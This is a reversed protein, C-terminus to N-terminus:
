TPKEPKLHPKKTLVRMFNQHAAQTARPDNREWREFETRATYGAASWIDKKTIRRGTKQLVENRYAQVAAQREEATALAGITAPEVISPEPVTTSQDNKPPASEDTLAKTRDSEPLVNESPAPVKEPVVPAIRFTVGKEGNALAIADLVLVTLYVPGPTGPEIWSGDKEQVSWLWRQALAAQRTWGGPQALALAHLAMATSVVSGDGDSSLTPWAGSKDQYRCITELAQHVLGADRNSSTLRYYAFVIASAYPLHRELSPSGDSNDLIWPQQKNSGALSIYELYGEIVRQMLAIGYDSRLINFLWDAALAPEEIGGRLLTEQRDRVLRLWWQDFGRIECWEVTRLMTAEISCDELALADWFDRLLIRPIDAINSVDANLSRKTRKAVGTQLDHQVVGWNYEDLTQQEATKWTTILRTVRDHCDHGRSRLYVLAEQDTECDLHDAIFSLWGEAKALPQVGRNSDVLTRYEENREQLARRWADVREMAAKADEYDYVQNRRRKVNTIKPKSMNTVDTNGPLIRANDLSV